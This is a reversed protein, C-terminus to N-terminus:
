EVSAEAHRMQLHQLAEDFDSVLQIHQVRDPVIKTIMRFMVEPFRGAGVVVMDRSKPHRNQSVSKMRSLINSPLTEGNQMDLIFDIHEYASADMMEHAGRIAGYFDDWTWKDDISFLIINTDPTNWAVQIGM